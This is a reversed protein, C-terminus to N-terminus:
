VKVASVTFVGQGPIEYGFELGNIDSESWASGTVPNTNFIEYYNQYGDAVAVMTGTAHGGVFLKPRIRRFGADDKKVRLLTQVGKISGTAGLNAMAFSDLAGVLSSSNYDSDSPPSEDVTQYNSGASPTFIASGGAGSPALYEVRCDGLFANGANSDLVYIDDYDYMGTQTGGVWGSLGLSDAYANSTGGRTNVNTLNLWEVGDVNVIVSGTTNHFTMKVELYRWIGSSGWTLTSTGLVTGTQASRARIKGDIMTLSAQFTSGDMFGMLPYGDNASINSPKVAMGAWLTTYNGPLAKRVCRLGGNPSSSLASGGYRGTVLTMPYGSVLYDTWKQLPDTYHDCSDMFIVAM